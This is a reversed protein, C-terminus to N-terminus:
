AHLSELKQALNELVAYVDQGMYINETIAEKNEVEVKGALYIEKDSTLSELMENYDDDMAVLVYFSEDGNLIEKLDSTNNALSELVPIGLLEFYNQAFTMRASLLAPKKWMIAKGKFDKGMKELKFRLTEFERANRRLPFLGTQEKEFKLLDLGYIKDEPNSFNNVGTVVMKRKRIAVLRKNSVEEVELSIKKLTENTLSEWTRAKEWSKDIMQSTLNEIFFSGHAPDKVISLLSEELLVKPINRTLKESLNSSAQGLFKFLIDEGYTSVFNAGGLISAESSTTNRLLNVWPDYLTQERLSSLAHIEFKNFSIGEDSLIKEALYRLARLKAIEQFFNSSVGVLVRTKSLLKKDKSSIELFLHMFSALEQLISGGANHVQAIDLLVSGKTITEEKFTSLTELNLRYFTKEEDKFGKNNKPYFDAGSIKVESTLYDHGEIIDSQNEVAYLYKTELCESPFSKLEFNVKAEDSLPFFDVEEMSTHHLAKELSETKLDAKTKELWENLTTKLYNDSLKFEDKM